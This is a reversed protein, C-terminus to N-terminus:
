QKNGFHAKKDRKQKYSLFLYNKNCFFDMKM